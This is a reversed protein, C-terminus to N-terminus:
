TRGEDKSDSGKSIAQLNTSGEEEDSEELGSDGQSQIKRPGVKGICGSEPIQLSESAEKRQTDFSVQLHCLFQCNNCWPVFLLSGVM